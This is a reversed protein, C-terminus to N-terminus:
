DVSPGVPNNGCEIAMGAQRQTDFAILGAVIQPPRARAYGRNFDSM